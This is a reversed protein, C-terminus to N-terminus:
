SSPSPAVMTNAAPKIPAGMRAAAAKAQFYAARASTASRVDSGTLELTRTERRAPEVGSARFHAVREARPMPDYNM